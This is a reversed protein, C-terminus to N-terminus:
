VNEFAVIVKLFEITQHTIESRDSLLQNQASTKNATIKCMKGVINEFLLVFVILGKTKFYRSIDSPVQLFM